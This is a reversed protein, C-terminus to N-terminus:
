GIVSFRPHRIVSCIHAGKIATPLGPSVEHSLTQPRVEPTFFSEKKLDEPTTKKEAQEM